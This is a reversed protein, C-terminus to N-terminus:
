FRGQVRVSLTAALYTHPPSLVVLLTAGILLAAAPALRPTRPLRPAPVAACGGAALGLQAGPTLWALVHEAQMLGAFAFTKVLLATGILAALLRRMPADARMGASALLVVATLNAATTVAEVSVFLEAAHRAGATSAFLDRLDGTGFLLTAPNLQAFLWLGLLTLGLDAAAGPAMAAGRLRGLLGGRSLRLRLRGTGAM